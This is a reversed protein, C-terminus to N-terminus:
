NHPRFIHGSSHTDKKHRKLTKQKIHNIARALLTNGVGDADPYMLANFAINLRNIEKRIVIQDKATYGYPASDDQPVILFDIIKEKVYSLSYLNM